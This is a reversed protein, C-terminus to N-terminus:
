KLSKILTKIFHRNSGENLSFNEAHMTSNGWIPLACTQVGTV